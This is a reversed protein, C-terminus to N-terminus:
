LQKKLIADTMRNKLRLGILKSKKKIARKQHLLNNPNYGEM